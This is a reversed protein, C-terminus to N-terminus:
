TEVRFEKFFIYINDNDLIKSFFIYELKINWSLKFFIKEIYKDESKKISIKKISIKPIKIHQYISNILLNEENFTFVYKDKKCGLVLQKNKM